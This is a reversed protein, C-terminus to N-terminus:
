SQKSVSATSEVGCGDRQLLHLSPEVATDLIALLREGVETHCGPETVRPHGSDDALSAVCCLPLQRSGLVCTRPFIAASSQSSGTVPTHESGSLLCDM